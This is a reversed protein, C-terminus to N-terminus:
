PHALVEIEVRDPISREASYLAHIGLGLNVMSKNTPCEHGENNPINRDERRKERSLVILECSM